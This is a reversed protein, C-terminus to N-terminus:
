KKNVRKNKNSSREQELEAVKLQVSTRAVLSEIGRSVRSVIIMLYTDGNEPHNRFANIIM